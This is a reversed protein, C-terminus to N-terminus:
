PKKASTGSAGSRLAAYRSRLEAYKKRIEDIEKDKTAISQEIRTKENDARAIDDELGAPIPKKAKQASEQRAKLGNYRDTISKLAARQQTIQLELASIERDRKADIEGTSSFTALLAADKRRQAAMIKEEEAKQRALAQAQERREAADEASETTKRTIGRSDLERTAADRYEPPVTDGCGVTKGSADKWCVIKGAAHGPSATVALALAACVVTLPQLFDNRM